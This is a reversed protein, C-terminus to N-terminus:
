AVEGGRLWPRDLLNVKHLEDAIWVRFTGGHLGTWGDRDAEAGCAGSVPCPLCYRVAAHRTETPVRPVRKNGPVLRGRPQAILDDDFPAPDVGRCAAGERWSVDLPGALLTPWKARDSRGKRSCSSCRGHGHHRRVGLKAATHRGAMPSDCEACRPLSGDVHSTTPSVLQATSEM